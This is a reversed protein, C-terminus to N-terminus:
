RSITGVSGAAWVKTLAASVGIIFILGRIIYIDFLGHDARYTGGLYPEALQLQPRRPPDLRDSWSLPM